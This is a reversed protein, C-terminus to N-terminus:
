RYKNLIEDIQGSKKMEKITKNLKTELDKIYSYKDVKLTFGIHAFNDKVKMGKVISPFMSTDILQDNIYFDAVGRVVRNLCAKNDNGEILNLKKDKIAKTFKEGGLLLQNFGRNLCVTTGYFDEPYIKKNKLFSEKAFVITTEALIPESFKTWNTREKGYYPPFFGIIKGQKTMNIARKYAMMNFKIDYGEIKSFAKKIIDVYVGKEKGNEVYSYPPYNRDGALEVLQSAFLSGSLLFMGVLNRINM